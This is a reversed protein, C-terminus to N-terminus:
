FFTSTLVPTRHVYPRIREHAAQVDDFTPIYMLKAGKLAARSADVAGVHRTNRYYEQAAAVGSGLTVPYDLDAMVMEAAAIGSLAMVDTM